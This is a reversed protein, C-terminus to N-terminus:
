QTLWSRTHKHTHDCGQEQVDMDVWELLDNLEKQELLMRAVRCETPGFINCSDGDVFLSWDDTINRDILFRIMSETPQNRSELYSGTQSWDHSHGHEVTYDSVCDVLSDYEERSLQCADMAAKYRRQKEREIALRRIEKKSSM